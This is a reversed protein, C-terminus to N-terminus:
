EHGFRKKGAALGTRYNQEFANWFGESVGTAKALVFATHEGFPEDNLVADLIATAAEHREKDRIGSAAVAAVSTWYLTPNPGWGRTRMGHDDLWERLVESTPVVYDPDFRRAM